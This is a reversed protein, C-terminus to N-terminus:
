QIINSMVESKGREKKEVFIFFLRGTARVIAKEKSHLVCVYMLRCYFVDLSKKREGRASGHWIIMYCQVEM